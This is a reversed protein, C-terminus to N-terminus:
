GRIEGMRVPFFTTLTDSSPSIRLYHGSAGEAQHVGAQPMFADIVPQWAARLERAPHSETMTTRVLDVLAIRCRRLADDLLSRNPFTIADL